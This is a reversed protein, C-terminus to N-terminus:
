VFLLSLTPFFTGFERSWFFISSSSPAEFDRFMITRLPLLLFRTTDPAIFVSGLEENGEHGMQLASLGM